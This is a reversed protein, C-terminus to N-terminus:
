IPYNKSTYQQVEEESYHSLHCGTTLILRYYLPLLVLRKLAFPKM